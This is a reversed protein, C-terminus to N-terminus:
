AATPFTAECTSHGSGAAEAARRVAGLPSTDHRGAPWTPCEFKLCKPQYDGLLTIPLEIYIPSSGVPCTWMHLSSTPAHVCCLPHRVACSPTHYKFCSLSAQAAVKFIRCLLASLSCRSMISSMISAWGGHPFNSFQLVRCGLHMCMTLQVHHM